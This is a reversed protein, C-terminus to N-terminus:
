APEGETRSTQQKSPIGIPALLVSVMIGLSLTAGFSRLAPMSSMGLM